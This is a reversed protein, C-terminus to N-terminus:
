TETPLFEEVVAACCFNDPHKEEIHAILAEFAHLSEEVEALLENIPRM